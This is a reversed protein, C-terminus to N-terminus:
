DDRRDFRKPLWPGCGFLLLLPKSRSLWRSASNRRSCGPLSTSNHHSSSARNPSLGLADDLERYALLGADSTVTSGHFELKIERDFDVRLSDNRRDGM